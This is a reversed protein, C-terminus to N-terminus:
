LLVWLNKKTMQFVRGLCITNAKVGEKADTEIWIAHQGLIEALQSSDM